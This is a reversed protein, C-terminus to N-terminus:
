PLRQRRVRPGAVDALQAVRDRTRDRQTALLEARDVEERLEARARATRREWTLQESHRPEAEGASIAAAATTAAIATAAATAVAATAGVAAAAWGDAASIAAMGAATAATAVWGIWEHGVLGHHLRRHNLREVRVPG